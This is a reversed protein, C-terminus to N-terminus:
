LQEGRAKRLAVRAAEVPWLCGEDGVLLRAEVEEAFSILGALAEYLEPASAILNANAYYEESDKYAVVLSAVRRRGHPKVDQVLSWINPAQFSWPGPTYGAMSTPNPM